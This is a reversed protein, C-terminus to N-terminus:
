TRNATWTAGILGVLGFIPWVLFPALGDVSLQAPVRDGVALGGASAPPPPGLEVGVRWAIVAALATLVVVMPVLFWGLDPLARAAVVSWLLSTVLGIAAFVVIVSFQGRSAMETLVIGNDRVEWRAPRALQVWVLGAVIGLLLMSLGTVLLRRVPAPRDDVPRADSVPPAPNV